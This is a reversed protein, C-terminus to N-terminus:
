KKLRKLHNVIGLKYCVKVMFMKAKSKFGYGGYKKAVYEYGHKKYDEWFEARKFSVKSPYKLQPQLCDKVNSEKYEIGNKTKEFSMEGKKTHILLLSIGKNDDFEPMSKEIGWFDAITLDSDRDIKTYRCNHCSLRLANHSYFIVKHKQSLASIWDKKGNEFINMENHGHWGKIKSRCNYALMNSNEKKQSLKIHEEWMLPSPTGHCVIDCLILNKIDIKQANLYSKLGECQCPTGTFLVKKSELDCEIQKFIRELDSQVYKSGRFQDRGEKTTARRHVVKFDENFAVGYVIGKEELIVDSIATFVGGSTSNMRVTEDKHKVAYVLPNMLKKERQYDKQFACVKLCKKCGICAEQNIFPYKFGEEDEQMKIANEPCINQCATCGCCDEKKNFLKIM